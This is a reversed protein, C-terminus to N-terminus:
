FISFALRGTKKWKAINGAHYQFRANYQRNGDRINQIEKARPPKKGRMFVVDGNQPHYVGEDEHSYQPYLRLPAGGVQIYYTDNNDKHCQQTVFPYEQTSGPYDSLLWISAERNKYQAIRDVAAKIDEKLTAM